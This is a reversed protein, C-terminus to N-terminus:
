KNEGSKMEFDDTKETKGIAGIRSIPRCNATM